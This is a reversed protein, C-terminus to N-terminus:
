GHPPTEPPPPARYHLLSLYDLRSWDVYSRVAVKGGAISAVQGVMLGPPLMGGHGSTLVRDGVAFSPNLPLFRLAPEGSNDGELIAQDGSSEVVVPIKSNFDTVLLIRASRRGADVVRGVLGQPTLAPMGV